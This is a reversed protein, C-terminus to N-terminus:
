KFESYHEIFVTTDDCLKKIENLFEKDSQVRERLTHIDCDDFNRYSSVIYGKGWLMNKHGYKKNIKKCVEQKLLFLMSHISFSSESMFSFSLSNSESISLDRVKVSLGYSAELEQFAEIVLSLDEQNFYDYKSLFLVNYIPNLNFINDETPYYYSFRIEASTYHKLASGITRKLFTFSTQPSVSFLVRISTNNNSKFLILRQPNVDLGLLTEKIDDINKEGKSLINLNLMLFLLSNKTKIMEYGKRKHVVMM